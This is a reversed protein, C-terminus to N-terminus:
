YPGYKYVISSVKGDLGNDRHYTVHVYYNSYSKEFSYIILSDVIDNLVTIVTFDDNTKMDPSDYVTIKTGAPVQSLEASRAEDNECDNSSKKFNVKQTSHTAPFACVIDQTAGNGEYLVIMPDLSFRCEESQQGNSKDGLSANGCSVNGHSVNGHIVQQANSENGHSVNGHQVLHGLSVNGRAVQQGQSVNGFAILIGVISIGSAFLKLLM